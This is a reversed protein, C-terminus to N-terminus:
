QSFRNSLDQRTVVPQGTSDPAAPAAPPTFSVGPSGAPQQSVGIMQSIKDHIQQAKMRAAAAATPDSSQLSAATREYFNASQGLQQILAVNQEAGARTTAAGETGGAREGAAAVTAGAATQAVNQRGGIQIIARQTLADQVAQLQQMHIQAANNKADMTFANQKAQEVQNWLDHYEPLMAMYSNKAQWASLSQYQGQYDPNGNEDTALDNGDSGAGMIGMFEDTADPANQAARVRAAQVIQAQQIKAQATAGDAAAQSALAPLTTQIQQTQAQTLQTKAATDLRQQAQSMWSQADNQAQLGIQTGVSPAQAPIFQSLGAM